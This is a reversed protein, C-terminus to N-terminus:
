PLFIISLKKKLGFATATIPADVLLSFSPGSSISFLSILLQDIVDEQGVITKAIEKKINKFIVPLNEVAEVDTNKSKKAVM